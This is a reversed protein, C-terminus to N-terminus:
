GEVSSQGDPPAAHQHAAGRQRSINEVCTSWVLPRREHTANLLPLLGSAIHHSDNNNNNKKNKNPSFQFCNRQVVDAAGHHLWDLLALLLLALALSCSSPACAFHFVISSTATSSTDAARAQRSLRQRCCYTTTPWLSLQSEQWCIPLWALLAREPRM